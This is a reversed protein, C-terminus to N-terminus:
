DSATAPEWRLAQMLHEDLLVAADDLVHRYTQRMRYLLRLLGGEVCLTLAQSVVPRWRTRDGRRWLLDAFDSLIVARHLQGIVPVRDMREVLPELLLQAETLRDHQIYARALGEELGMVYLPALDDGRHGAAEIGAHALWEAERLSYRRLMLLAGLHDRNIQPIWMEGGDRVSLAERAQELVPIALRSLQMTYLGVAESRLAFANAAEYRETHHRYSAPHARALVNRARKAFFLARSRENRVNSIQHQALAAEAYAVPYRWPDVEMMFASAALGLLCGKARGRVSDRAYLFERHLHAIHAALENVADGSYRRRLETALRAQHERALMMHELLHRREEPGLELAEVIAKAKDAAATRHNYPDLLYSLYVPSINVRMALARKSGPRQLQGKLVAIYTERHVQAEWNVPELSAFEYM